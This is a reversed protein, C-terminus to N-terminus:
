LTFVTNSHLKCTPKYGISLIKEAFWSSQFLSENSLNELILIPLCRQITKLAGALAEKEYGEVDLQLVSIHRNVPIVADITKIQVVESGNSKQTIIHSAGGLPKGHIDATQVFLNEQNSGLGANTLIVNNIFNLQITISACHYNEPNPEFAWIKAAPAIGKSLAPLFDGFYTGAHVIDGTKCNNLIYQITNPEYIDNSLIKKAAPRYRSSLPICYGGYKNYSITCNLVNNTKIKKPLLCALPNM